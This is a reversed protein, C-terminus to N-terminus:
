LAIEEITNLRASRVAARTAATAWAGDIASAAPPAGTQISQIFDAVIARHGKPDAGAAVRRTGREDAFHLTEFDNLEFSGGDRAGLLREKGLGSHGSASYVLTGISGDGFGFLATLENAADIPSPAMARVTTPPWGILWAMLDGFHCAEGVIRGGGLSSDLLWHDAPLQGAEVHYTLTIPGSRSELWVRLERTLPALRRNFGIAAVRGATEAANCVERCEEITLGLPKEVFVHKGARLAAAAISAHSDHRTLVMVADVDPDAILEAPDTVCFRAGTFEAARRATGPSRAAVGVIEVGRTQRTDPIRTARAFTGVGVIGLGITGPRAERRTGLEIRRAPQALSLADPYTLEVALAKGEAIGAFGAAANEIPHSQSVLRDVNIGGPGLMALFAGINRGETWRVQARPYDIGGEEYTPDYRGPGYSRSLRLDLERRYFPERDIDLGIDGVVVVRGRERTSRAAWNIPDDSPTAAALIVADVGNGEAVRRVMADAASGPEAFERVWGADLALRARERRPEVGIVRCGARTAIAAILQGVLGMGVVAITEGIDPDCRRVAQLAIAGLTGFAAQRPSIGDPAPVVLNRPVAAYEAHNAYGTGACAVLQGFKVSSPGGDSEDVEVVVGALSYGVPTLRALREQVAGVASAVGARRIREAVRLAISPDAIARRIPNGSAAAATRETGSSIISALTRVLVWGPPRTPAPVDLVVVGERPDIFVQKM